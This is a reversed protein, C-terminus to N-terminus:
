LVVESPISELPSLELRWENLTSFSSVTYPHDLGLIQSRALACDEMLRIADDVRGQRKWTYALNNVSILTDPHEPGLITKVAEMVQVELSEAEDLRGQERYTSALNNIANSTGLHEPGLTTKSAEMVQVQLLEAKEWHGQDQYISALNNMTSLTHPHEPGLVATRIEVAQIAFKEAYNWQGESIFFMAICHYISAKALAEDKSGTGNLNLVVRAHPLYASCRIRDEFEGLPYNKSVTLIAERGFSSIVKNSTLWKQTVLQVLRHMDFNHDKDETVLSYAKLVGLSKTVQLDEANEPCQQSKKFSTMFEMPIAQRDFLSMLSLLKGAFKDQRKIQEFSLIWTAVVAHPMASDRGITEFEESLLDVLSHDGQDLRQLYDDVDITNEQIFAAAQALALPLHELRSALISLKDTSTHDNELKMRLLQCSEDDDMKFINVLGNGRTLQSAVKKNRTTILIAGHTCEPIYQRLNERYSSANAVGVNTPETLRCFLHADDANDIVMLWRGRCKKELWIKLLLSVDTKPDDHGPVQCEKAISSYAQRFREANSAHVWFISVDPYRKRLWFVYALVIQTKGVGGLGWLAARPQSDDTPPDNHGLHGKVRELIESRGVFQPNATYPVIFQPTPIEHGVQIGRPESTSILVLQNERDKTAGIGKIWRRLEGCVSIFGADDMAVFKAMDMHNSRIGIPIYGPLIASDQPVVGTLPLEEYFCTIEIPQLGDKSRSRAMTHFGEQIQALVESDQRLARLIDTNTRKVIGIHRSLREAWVALGSGHHPTGLFAIGRTSRFIHQIHQETRQRATALADECVLGGLSYCIFIIPRENTDNDERFSSLSTLLNWAHNRIRNRSVVSLLDAVYADYGFTLIRATPLKSPLLTKPCPDSADKATWTRERDGTLGHIFVISSRSTILQSYKVIPPPLYRYEVTCDTSDAPCHLEKIGAPFVKVSGTGSPGDRNGAKRRSFLPM